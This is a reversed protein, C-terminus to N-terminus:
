ENLDEQNKGHNKVIEDWIGRAIIRKTNKPIKKIDGDKSIIIVENYDSGFGCDKRSIDNLVIMDLNRGSIKETANDVNEGSEAAFGALYQSDKKIESLKQLININEKFKLKSIIDDNKKLKYDFRFDPVIDSVAAAMVTIDSDNFSYLVADLMEQTNVVKVLDVGYPKQINDSACVLVVRGAGRFYAEEALAIGMKGSSLNSIYRVSDIHEITAGATIIVKKDKLDSKYSILESLRSIIVDENALRGVGEEGCALRGSQPEVFFYQGSAKLSKINEQVAHNLYMAENMAPAIVVPCVSSIVATTLFNDCLGCALRSITNATAPAILIADVSHSLSIHYIKEENNFEEFLAKKGSIASLTLPNIFNLANPTLVPFVEAGAKVLRSCISAAKYAAISGTVCLMIKKKELLMKKDQQHPM